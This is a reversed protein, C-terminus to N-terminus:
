FKEMAMAIDTSHSDAEKYASRWAMMEDLAQKLLIKSKRKREEIIKRMDVIRRWLLFSGILGVLIGFTLVVPSFIIILSAIMLLSSACLGTFILVQRDKFRRKLKSKNYFEEIKKEAETYDNENCVLECDDIEIQYQTKEKDRYISPFQELGQTISEKMFSIAIKRVSIDTQSTDSAFAWELMMDALNRKKGEDVFMENYNRQAMTIDGKANLIAENYKINKVIKEEDDDYSNILSYLVNEIRQPLNEGGDVDKEAISNYFRAIESNKEAQSLLEKMEEYERCTRRLIPYENETKHIYNNAFSYAKQRFKSSVDVTTAEAQNLMEKFSKMVQSQFTEDKGFAGFLYAQFLYQWEDGLDNVDSRDLFVLYWKKAADLRGFRLNVLLFFLSSKFYSMSLSKNVARYAAEKENSSWLMVATICYALWYDTNQLYSKEVKKRLVESQIINIDIGIIYGLTIRRIEHYTAYKTNYEDTYQTLNKSATSLNKYTFYQTSLENLAKFVEKTNLEASGVRSSLGTMSDYVNSDMIECNETMAVVGAIATALEAELISNEAEVQLIRNEVRQIESVLREYEAREADYNSM